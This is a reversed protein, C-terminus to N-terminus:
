KIGEKRGNGAEEWVSCQKGKSEKALRRQRRAQVGQVAQELLLLVYLYTQLTPLPWHHHRLPHCRGRFAVHRHRASCCHLFGQWQGSGLVSM